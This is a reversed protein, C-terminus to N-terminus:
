KKSPLIISFEVPQLMREYRRRTIKIDIINPTPNFESIPITCITDFGTRRGEQIQLCQESTQKKSDITTSIYTDARLSNVFINITAKNGTEKNTTTLYIISNNNEDCEGPSVLVALDQTKLNQLFDRHKSPYDLAIPKDEVNDPLTFTNKSHYSGDRSLAQVCVSSGAASSPPLMAILVNSSINYGSVTIGTVVRGGVPTQNQYSEKLPYDKLRAIPEEAHTSCFPIIYFLAFFPLTLKMCM